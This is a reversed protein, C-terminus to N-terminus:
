EENRIVWGAGLFEKIMDDLDRDEVNWTFEYHLKNFADAGRFKAHLTKKASIIYLQQRIEELGHETELVITEGKGNSFIVRSIVKVEELADEDLM